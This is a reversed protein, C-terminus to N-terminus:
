RKASTAVRRLECAKFRPSAAIGSGPEFLNVIFRGDRCRRRVSGGMGRYPGATVVIRDGKRM